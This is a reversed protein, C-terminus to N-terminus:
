LYSSLRKKERGRARERWRKSESGVDGWQHISLDDIDLRATSRICNPATVLRRAPPTPPAATAAAAAPPPLVSHLPAFPVPHRLPCPMQPPFCPSPFFYLICCLSCPPLSLLPPQTCHGCLARLMRYTQTSAAFMCM